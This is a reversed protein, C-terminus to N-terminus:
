GVLVRVPLPIGDIGDDPVRASMGEAVKGIFDREESDDELNLGFLTKNSGKGRMGIRGEAASLFAATASINTWNLGFLQEHRLLGFLIPELVDDGRAPDQGSRVVAIGITKLYPCVAISEKATALAHSSLAELYLEAREGKSRKKITPKGTPTVAAKREPVLDDLAPWRMVIDVRADRCSVAAAPAENDEFAQELTPLVVDEENAELATWYREWREAREDAETRVRLQEAEIEEDLRALAQERASRRQGFKLPSIGSQAEQILRHKVAEQDIPDPDEAPPKSAKEFDEEHAQCMEVLQKDLALAARVEEVKQAQRVQREHAVVSSRTPGRSRSGGGLRTYYRVPGKGVSMGLGRSGGYVRVGSGVRFGLGM